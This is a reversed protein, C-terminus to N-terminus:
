EITKAYYDHVALNGDFYRAVKSDAGLEPNNAAMRAYRDLNHAIDPRILSGPSEGAFYPASKRLTTWEVPNTAGDTACVIDQTAELAIVDVDDPISFRAIPSGATIVQRINYSTDSSALSAATIGGLSFGALLIPPGDPDAPIGAAEMSDLVARALATQRGGVMSHLDATLDSPATMRQLDFSQTSPIQVIYSTIRGEQDTNTIVRITAFGDKGIDDIQRGSALLSTIDSPVIRENADVRFAGDSGFVANSSMAARLRALEALRKETLGSPGLEAPRDIFFGFTNGSAILGRLIDDYFPGTRGLSSEFRTIAHAFAGNMEFASAINAGFLAGFLAGGGMVWEPNNRYDELTKLLGPVLAAVFEDGFGAVLSDVAVKVGIIATGFLVGASEAAALGALAEDGARTAFAGATGAANGLGTAAIALADEALRYTTVVTASIVAASEVATAHIVLRSVAVAM